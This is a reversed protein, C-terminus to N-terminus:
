PVACRTRQVRSGRTPVRKTPDAAGDRGEEEYEEIYPTHIRDTTRCPWRDIFTITSPGRVQMAQPVFSFYPWIHVRYLGLLRKVAWYRGSLTISHPRDM